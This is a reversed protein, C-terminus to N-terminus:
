VQHDHCEDQANESVLRDPDEGLQTMTDRWMAMAAVEQEGQTMDLYHKPVRL